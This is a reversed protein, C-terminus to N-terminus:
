PKREWTAGAIRVAFVTDVVLMALYSIGVWVGMVLRDFWATLLLPAALALVALFRLATSALVAQTIKQPARAAALGVPVAGILSALLSIGIGVFMADIVGTGSARVTPVYGLLALVCATGLSSAALRLYSPTFVRVQPDM